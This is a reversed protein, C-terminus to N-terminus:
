HHVISRLKGFLYETFRGLFYFIGANVIIGFLLVRIDTDFIQGNNYSFNYNYWDPIWVSWPATILVTGLDAFWGRNGWESLILYIAVLVYISPLIYRPLFHNKKNM